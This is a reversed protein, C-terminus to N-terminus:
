AAQEEMDDTIPYLEHLLGPDGYHTLANDLVTLSVTQYEGTLWARVRRPDVGIQRAAEEQTHRDAITQLWNAFPTANLMTQRPANRVRPRAPKKTPSTAKRASPNPALQRIAWQRDSMSANGMVALLNVGDAAAAQGLSEQWRLRQPRQRTMSIVDLLTLRLTEPPPNTLIDAINTTGARIHDRLKYTAQRTAIAKGLAAHRQENATM